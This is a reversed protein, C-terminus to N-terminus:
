AQAPFRDCLGCGKSQQLLIDQASPRPSEPAVAPSFWGVPILPVLFELFVSCPPAVNGVPLLFFECPNLSLLHGAQCQEQIM